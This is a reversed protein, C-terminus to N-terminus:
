GVTLRFAHLVAGVSDAIPRNQVGQDVRDVTGGPDGEV